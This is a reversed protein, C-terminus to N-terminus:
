GIAHVTQYTHKAVVDQGRHRCRRLYELNHNDRCVSLMGMLWHTYLALSACSHPRSIASCGSHTLDSYAAVDSLMRPLGSLKLSTNPSFSTAAKLSASRNQSWINCPRAYATESQLQLSCRAQGLVKNPWLGHAESASNQTLQESDANNQVVRLLQNKDTTSPSLKQPCCNRCKMQSIYMQTTYMVCM